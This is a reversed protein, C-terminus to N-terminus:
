PRPVCGTRPRGVGRGAGLGGGKEEEVESRGLDWGRGRSAAGRWDKMELSAPAVNARASSGSSAEAGWGRRFFHLQGALRRGPTM